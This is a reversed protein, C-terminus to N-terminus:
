SIILRLRELKDLLDQADDRFLGSSDAVIATLTIIAEDLQEISYTLYHGAIEAMSKTYTKRQATIQEQRRFIRRREAAALLQKLDPDGALQLGYLTLGLDTFHRLMSSRDVDRFQPHTWRLYEMFEAQDVELRVTAPESLNSVSCKIGHVRDAFEDVLRTLKEHAEQSLQFLTM